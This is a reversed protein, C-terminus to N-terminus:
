QQYQSRINMRDNIDDDRVQIRDIPKYKRMPDIYEQVVNSEPEAQAGGAPQVMYPLKKIDEPGIHTVQLPPMNERSVPASRAENESLQQPTLSAAHQLMEIEM